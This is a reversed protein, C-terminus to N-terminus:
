PREVFQLLEDDPGHFLIMRGGDLTPKPEDSLFKIGKEMYYGITENLHNVSFALHNMIGFPQYKVIPEFDQILEIEVDPQLDLYLFAMERDPGSGRLRLKLGLIETYFRISKEIDKVIIATHEIKRIM